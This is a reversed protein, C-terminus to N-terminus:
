WCIFPYLFNSICVYVISDYEAMFLLFAQWKHCCPHAQLVHHWHFYTLCLLVFV